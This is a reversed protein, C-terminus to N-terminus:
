ARDAPKEPQDPRKTANRATKKTRPSRNSKPRCTRCAADVAGFDGFVMLRGNGAVAHGHAAVGKENVAEAKFEETIRQQSHKITM